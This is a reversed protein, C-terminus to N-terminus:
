NKDGKLNQPLIRYIKPDFKGYVEVKKGQVTYLLPWYSPPPALYWAPMISTSLYEPLMVAYWSGDKILIGKEPPTSKKFHNLTQVKLSEKSYLTIFNGSLDDTYIIDDDELKLNSLFRTIEKFDETHLKVANVAKTGFWFLHICLLAFLFILVPTLKKSFKLLRGFIAGFVLCQIPVIMSIYRIYKAIPDGHQDQVGWQLYALWFWCGLALAFPLKEKLLLALITVIAFLYWIIGFHGEAHLPNINWIKFLARPLYDSDINSAVAEETKLICSIRAFWSGCEIKVILFELFMIFLLGATIWLLHKIKPRVIFLFPIAVLILTVFLVNVMWGFGLCIGCFILLVPEKWGSLFKFRSISSIASSTKGTTAYFYFFAAAAVCTAHQNSPSLQTGFVLQLPYVIYLLSTFIAAGIGWLRVATLYILTCTILACTIPYLSFGIENYGFLKYLLALPLVMGLRFGLQNFGSHFPHEGHILNRANQIYAIDDNIGIGVFNVLRSSLCLLLLLLLITLNRRKM